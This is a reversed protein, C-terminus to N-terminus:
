QAGGQGLAPSGFTPIAVVFRHSLPQHPPMGPEDPMQITVTVAVAAPPGNVTGDWEDLRTQGLADWFQFQVEKVEPALVEAQADEGYPDGIFNVNEQRILGADAQVTYVITRLDAFVGPPNPEEAELRSYRPSRSGYITLQLSNGQLGFNYQSPAPDPPTYNPDKALEIANVVEPADVLLALSQRIDTSLRIVTGRIIQLSAVNEKGVRVARIMLEITAYVAALLIASIGIAAIVEILTFGTRAARQRM